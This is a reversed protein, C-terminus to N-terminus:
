RMHLVPGHYLRAVELSLYLLSLAVSVAASTARYPLPRTTRAILALVIALVAPLGYGLLILNFFTGGVPEGTILPNEALVLGFVIGALALGAIILAAADHIVSRTRGLLREIGIAMALGVSVQLALEALGSRRVFVDGNNMLHRIQLFGLLVTFLIAAADVARAPADDARKRLLHGGVWFALAPLRYRYVLWHFVPKTGVDPGVIRPEWGIRALVLTVIAAALWRLMPLPRQAAVCAIGPVMLALAVTLWGKELAFTMSLALAAVAGSAYIAQAAASGPRPARRALTETAVAFLAALVLALGAFPISREWGAVRYYLAILIAIPALASSAAWLIPVLPRESRGQALFGAAGFLLAFFAGLALHFGTYALDPDPIAGASPGGPLVLREVVPQVSWSDPSSWCRPSGSGRWRTSHTRRSRRCACTMSAPSCGHWASASEWSPSGAGCASAPSGSRPRRSSRSISMSRGTTRGIPPSWCRRSRPAWSASRQSPRDTCCPLSSRRSRSWVSCCSPSRRISFGTSRMPRM